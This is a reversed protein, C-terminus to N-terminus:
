THKRLLAQKTEYEAIVRLRLVFTFRGRHIAMERVSIGGRLSDCSLEM